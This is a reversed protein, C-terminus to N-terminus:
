RGICIWQYTLSVDNTNRLQFTSNSISGIKPASFDTGSNDEITAVVSYIRIFSGLPTVVDATNASVTETGRGIKLGNALTTTGKTNSQDSEGADVTPNYTTQSTVFTKIARQSVLLDNDNAALTTDEDICERASSDVGGGDKTELNIVGDKDVLRIGTADVAKITEITAVKASIMTLNGSSIINGTTLVGANVISTTTIDTHTGDGTIATGTLDYNHEVAGLEQFGGQIRRMNDDAERPDDNGTPLSTDITDTFGFILLSLVIVWMTLNLKKM